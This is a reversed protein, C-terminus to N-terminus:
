EAVKGGTERNGDSGAGGEFDVDGGLLNEAMSRGPGSRIEPPALEFLCVNM